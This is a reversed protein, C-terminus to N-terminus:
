SHPTDYSLSAPLWMKFIASGDTPIELKFQVPILAKDPAKKRPVATPGTSLVRRLLLAEENDDSVWWAMLRLEDGLDPPEITVYPTGGPGSLTGGNFAVLFNSATIQACQFEFMTSRSTAVTKVPDLEEAVPIDEFTTEPTFTHGEETYGIPLWASPLTATPSAPESTGIPAVYILGPGVKVAAPTGM